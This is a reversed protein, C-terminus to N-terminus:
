GNGITFYFSAGKGVAGTAWITGGHRRVIRQATALGIGTGPFEDVGHLRQFAGFLKEAYKMDFGAGNDRVLFAQRGEHPEVTFEVRPHEAKGTFKWANGLLNTLLARMLRPDAAASLGPTVALDMRREPHGQALEAAIEKAIESLDVPQRKLEARSIRSLELLADILQGMRVGARQIRELYNRGEADLKPAYDEMLIQTFGTLTRVPQRLDHSASYAFTELERNAVELAQNSARLAEEALKRDSMDAIAAIAQVGDPTQLASLSIDVPFESGDKRRGFLARGTGMPRVSPAAMYGNRLGPHGTRFREPSLMEVPQGLLEERKYGFWALTQSNAQRLRGDGDVIVMAHPALDFVQQARQEAVRREAVESELRTKFAELERNLLALARNNAQLAEQTLVHESIDAIAAIAQLGDETELASLSIDVPFESGDKRRAFLKRGTGMPRMSPAAFYGSRLGPHHVRFREPVLMEIPQGVVEDLSYGFWKLLQGNVQRIVGQRDVIVNAHPALQFIQAFRQEAGAAQRGQGAVQPMGGREAPDDGALRLLAAGVTRLSQRSWDKFRFGRGM